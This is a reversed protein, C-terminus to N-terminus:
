YDFWLGLGLLEEHKDYFQRQLSTGQYYQFGARFVRGSCDGRWQWGAVVNVYGSFDFDELLHANIAAYPMGQTGNPEAPNYEAGCQFELAKAGGQAGVAYGIEGYVAVDDTLNHIAGAILSDRVYEIRPFTPNRLLYEDGIHSSLHYFGAKVATPGRRWTWLVGARFDVSDKESRLVPDIRPFAAGELDIQWGEPNEGFTGRRVLGFRGGLTTEWVWGRGQEYLWVAAFRSEKPGALYSHYLLGDPLLQWSPCCPDCTAWGDDGYEVLDEATLGENDVPTESITSGNWNGPAIGAVHEMPLLEVPSEAWVRGAPEYRNSTPEMVIGPQQGSAVSRVGVVMLFVVLGLKVAHRSTSM